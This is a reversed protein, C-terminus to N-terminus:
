VKRKKLGLFMKVKAKIAKIKQRLNNRYIVSFYAFDNVTNRINLHREMDITKQKESQM